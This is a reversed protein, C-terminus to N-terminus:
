NELSDEARARRHSADGGHPLEGRLIRLRALSSSIIRRGNFWTEITPANRKRAAHAGAVGCAGSVGCEIAPRTVATVGTLPPPHPDIRTSSRGAPAEPEAFADTRRSRLACIM